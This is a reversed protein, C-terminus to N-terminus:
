PLHKPMGQVTLMVPLDTGPYQGATKSAYAPFSNRWRVPEANINDLVWAEGDHDSEPDFSSWPGLHDCYSSTNSVPAHAMCEWSRKGGVYLPNGFAAYGPLTYSNSQDTTIDISYSAGQEITAPKDFDAYRYCRTNARKRRSAGNAAPASNIIPKLEDCDVNIVGTALVTNNADRLTISIKGNDAIAASTYGISLWAGDVVKSSWDYGDISQRYIKGKELVAMAHSESVAQGGYYLNTRWYFNGDPGKQRVGHWPIINQEPNHLELPNDNNAGSSRNTAWVDDASNRSLYRTSTGLFPGYGSGDLPYQSDNHTSPMVAVQMGNLGMTGSNIDCTKAKEISHNSPPNACNVSPNENTIVAWYLGGPTPIFPQDVFAALDDWANTQLAKKPTQTPIVPTVGETIKTGPEGNADDHHFSLVWSGGNGTAYSNGIAFSCQARTLGAEVCDRFISPTSTDQGRGNPNYLDYESVMRDPWRFGDIPDSNLARFRIAHSHNQIYANAGGITDAIMAAAPGVFMGGHPERSDLGEPWEGPAITIGGSVAATAIPKVVLPQAVTQETASQDPEPSQSNLESQIAVTTVDGAAFSLEYSPSEFRNGAADISILRFQYTEGPDLDNVVQRHGAYNFSPEKATSLNLINNQGYIIQGTAEEDLTWTITASNLGTEIVYDLLQPAQTDGGSVVAAAVQPQATTTSSQQAGGVSTNTGIANIGIPANDGNTASAVAVTSGEANASQAVSAQDQNGGACSSLVIPLVCMALRLKYANSLALM